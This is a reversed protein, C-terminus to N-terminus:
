RQDSSRTLPLPLADAAATLSRLRREIEGRCRRAAADAEAWTGDTRLIDLHAEIEPEWRGARRLVLQLPEERVRCLLGASTPPRISELLEALRRRLARTQPSSPEARFGDPHRAFLTVEYGVTVRRGDHQQLSPASDWALSHERAFRRLELPVAAASSDSTRMRSSSDWLM